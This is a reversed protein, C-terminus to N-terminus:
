RFQPGTIWAVLSSRKGRTVPTVRHLLFSPFFIITGKMKPLTIPNRRTYIQLEGGDYDDPDSLQISMSIKRFSNNSDADLHWDYHGKNESLYTGVQLGEGFGVIDFNWMNNATKVLGKLKDFIWKTENSSELWTIKSNRYGQDVLADTGIGGSIEKKKDAIQLIKTIEEDTLGDRFFYYNEIEQPNKAFDHKTM